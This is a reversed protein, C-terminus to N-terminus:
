VSKNDVLVKCTIYHTWFNDHLYGEEKSFGECFITPTSNM